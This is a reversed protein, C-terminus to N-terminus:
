YGGRGCEGHAAGEGERRVERIMNKPGPTWTDLHQKARDGGSQAQAETESLTRVTPLLREDMNCFAPVITRLLLFGKLPGRNIERNEESGNSAAKDSM